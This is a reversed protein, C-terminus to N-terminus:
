KKGGEKKAPAAAAKADGGKADGGKADGAKAGAGVAFGVQPADELREAVHLWFDVRVTTEPWDAPPLDISQLIESRTRWAEDVYALRKVLWLLDSGLLSM